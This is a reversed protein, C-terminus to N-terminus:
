GSIVWVVINSEMNKELDNELMPSIIRLRIIVILIVITTVFVLVVVKATIILIVILIKNNGSWAPSAARSAVSVM